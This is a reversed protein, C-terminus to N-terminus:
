DDKPSKPFTIVNSVDDLLEAIERAAEKAAARRLDDAELVFAKRIKAWCPEAHREIIELVPSAADDEAADMQLLAASRLSPPLNDLADCEFEADFMRAASVAENIALAPREITDSM